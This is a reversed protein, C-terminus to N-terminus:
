SFWSVLEVGEFREFDRPNGTVLTMERVAAIAAIQGDIFPPERGERRLRAREKGHWHAAVDDYPLIPFSPRVVEALYREISRRKKSPDLLELGYILENWVPAALAIEHDHRELHRVLTVDPQLRM